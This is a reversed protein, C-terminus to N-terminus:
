FHIHSCILSRLDLPQLRSPFHVDARLLASSLMFSNKSKCCLGACLVFSGHEYIQSVNLSLVTTCSQLQMNQTYNPGQLIVQSEIAQQTLKGMRARNEELEKRYDLNSAELWAIKQKLM